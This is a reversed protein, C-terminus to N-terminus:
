CGGPFRQCPNGQGPQAPVAKGRMAASLPPVRPSRIRSICESAMLVAGAFLLAFNNGVYSLGLGLAAPRACRGATGTYGGGLM